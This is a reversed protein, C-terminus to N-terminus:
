LNTPRGENGGKLLAEARWQVGGHGMSLNVVVVFSYFGCGHM